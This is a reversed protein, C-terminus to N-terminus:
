CVFIFSIASYGALFKRAKLKASKGGNKKLWCTTVMEFTKFFPQQYHEVIPCGGNNQSDQWM